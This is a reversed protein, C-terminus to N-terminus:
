QGPLKCVQLAAQSLWDSSKNFRGSRPDPKILGKSASAGVGNGTLDCTLVNGRPSIDGGGGVSTDSFIDGRQSTGGGGHIDSGWHVAITAAFYRPRQPWIEFTKMIECMHCRFPMTNGEVLRLTLGCCVQTRPRHPTLFCLWVPLPSIKASPRM